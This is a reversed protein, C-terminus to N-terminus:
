STHSDGACRIPRDVRPHTRGSGVTAHRPQAQPLGRCRAPWRRDHLTSLASDRAKGVIDVRRLLQRVRPATAPEVNSAIRIGAVSLHERMHAEDAWTQRLPLKAWEAVRAAYRAQGAAIAEVSANIM